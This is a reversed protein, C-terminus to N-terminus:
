EDYDGRKWADMTERSIGVSQRLGDIKRGERSARMLMIGCFGAIVMAIIYIIARVITNTDPIIAAQYTLFNYTVIVLVMVGISAYGLIRQRRRKASLEDIQKLAVRQKKSLKAM